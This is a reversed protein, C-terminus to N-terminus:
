GRLFQEVIIPLTNHEFSYRHLPVEALSPFIEMINSDEAERGVVVLVAKGLGHAIGLQLCISADHETLNVIVHSAQSIRRWIDEIVNGRLPRKEYLYDMDLALCRQRVVEHVNESWPMNLSFAHYVSKKDDPPYVLPYTPYIVMPHPPTAHQMLHDLVARFRYADTLTDDTLMHTMQRVMWGYTERSFERRAYDRTGAIMSPSTFPTEVHYMKHDIAEALKIANAVFAVPETEVWLPEIPLTFPFHNGQNAALIIPKGLVLAIGLEYAVACRKVNVVEPTDKDNRTFDFVAVHGVQMMQWRTKSYEDTAGTRLVFMDLAHAALAVQRKLMTRGSYFVTNGEIPMSDCQWHPRILSLHHRRAFGKVEAALPRLIKNELTLLDTINDGIQHVLNMAETSRAFLEAHYVSEEDGMSVPSRVVEDRSKVTLGDASPSDPQDEAAGDSMLPQGLTLLYDQLADVLYLVQEPRKELDIRDPYVRDPAAPYAEPAAEPASEDVSLIHDIDQLLERVQALLAKEHPQDLGQRATEIIAELEAFIPQLQVEQSLSLEGSEISSDVKELVMKLESGEPSYALPDPLQLPAEAKPFQSRYKGNTAIAQPDPPLESLPAPANEGLGIGRPINALPAVPQAEWPPRAGERPQMNTRNDQNARTPEAPPTETWWPVQAKPPLPEANSLPVSPPPPTKDVQPPFAARPPAKAGQDNAPLDLTTQRTPKAPPPPVTRVEKEFRTQERLRPLNLQYQGLRNIQMKLDPEVQLWGQYQGNQYAAQGKQYQVQKQQILNALVMMLRDFEADNLGRLFPWIEQHADTDSKRLWSEMVMAYRSHESAEKLPEIPTPAAGMPHQRRQRYNEVWGFLQQLSQARHHLHRHHEAQQANKPPKSGQTLTDSIKYAIVDGFLVLEEDNLQALVNPLHQQSEDPTTAILQEIIPSFRPVARMLGVTQRASQRFRNWM